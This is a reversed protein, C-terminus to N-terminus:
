REIRSQIEVQLLRRDSADLGLYYTALIYIGSAIVGVLALQTWDTLDWELPIWCTGVAVSLCGVVGPVISPLFTRWPLNLIHAGYVPTFFANKATLLIAGAIPISIYDWGSWLAIAVVVAANTMGVVLTVVGPLWVNNTAVQVSFLPIVALNICLHGVLAIVLWSLDSFEPGLWVTLLPKGLGCLLGIPLAVTLGISKVALQCLTVLRSLDDQAYLAFVIPTLVGRLTTVLARLLIPLILVAGYRGAVEAGFALNVVILDINLILLAGVQNLLVYGSFGLMQKLRSLDFLNLRIKLEPTLKHWLAWHGLLFFASSLFLGVGVQWLQPSLVSFLVVVSGMQAVLRVCNVLFRLDFRHYAYSSVAFSTAVTTILFAAVIFFLLWRVDREYGLPVDFVQPAFWSLILAVPLLIVATVLGGAFGTNFTRNTVSADDRALDITLFRGVADNLGQTLVTMYNTLSSALAVLGYAAIGLHEILYPTYWLGAIMNMVLWALNSLM